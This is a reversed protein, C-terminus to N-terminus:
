DELLRWLRTKEREATRVYARGKLDEARGTFPLRISSVLVKPSRERVTSSELVEADDPVGDRDRDDFLVVQLEEIPPGGARARAGVWRLFVTGGGAEVYARGTRLQLDDSEYLTRYSADGWGAGPSRCAALSLAPLLLALARM